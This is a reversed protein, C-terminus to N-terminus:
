LEYNMFKLIPVSGGVSNKILKITSTPHAKQGFKSMDTNYGFAYIGKEQALQVVAASDTHQRM